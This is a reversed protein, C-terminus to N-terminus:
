KGVLVFRAHGAGLEDHHREFAAYSVFTEGCACSGPQLGRHGTRQTTRPRKSSDSAEVQARLKAPLDELRLTM